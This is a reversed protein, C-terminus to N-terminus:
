DFQEVVELLTRFAGFKGAYRATHEAQLAPAFVSQYQELTAMDECFYQVAYTAGDDSDGLVENLTAKEFLGTNLVDPIHTKRMWQLWDEQISLDVNVTVNYIIM